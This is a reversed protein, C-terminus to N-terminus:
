DELRINKRKSNKLPFLEGNATARFVQNNKILLGEGRDGTKFGSDVALIRKGFFAYVHELTTHGVVIHKVGFYSAIQKVQKKKLRKGSKSNEFFGRYWHPGTGLFFFSLIPDARIVERPTDLNNRIIQNISQITEHKQVIAPHIGGHVFLTDNIKLLSPCSRLWRGLESHSSYLAPIDKKLLEKSINLYKPHVYRLDGQLVMIEHNGLLMHVSGGAQRAQRALQHVLWLCETVHQGRDFIDGLIVLHGDGWTWSVHTDAITIIRHAQLMQSFSQYQGHIDSVVFIKAVNQYVDPEILPAQPSVVLTQNLEPCNLTIQTQGQTNIERHFVQSDKVYSVIARQGEWFVYPGDALVVPLEVAPLFSDSVGFFLLIFLFVYIFQRNPRLGTKSKKRHSLYKKLNL